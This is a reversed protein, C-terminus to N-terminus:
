VRTRDSIAGYILLRLTQFSAITLALGTLCNSVSIHVTQSRGFDEFSLNMRHGHDVGSPIHRARAVRPVGPLISVKATM